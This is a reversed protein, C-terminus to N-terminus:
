LVQFILWTIFITTQHAARNRMFVKFDPWNMRELIFRYAEIIAQINLHQIKFCSIQIWNNFKLHTWKTEAVPFRWVYFLLLSDRTRQHQRVSWCCHLIVYTFAIIFVFTTLSLGKVSLITNTSGRVALSTRPSQPGLRDVFNTGNHGVKRDPNRTTNNHTKFYFESLSNFVVIEVVVVVVEIAVM